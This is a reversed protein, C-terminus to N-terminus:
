EICVSVAGLGIKGFFCRFSSDTLASVHKALDNAILCFGADDPVFRILEDRPAAFSLSLVLLTLPM